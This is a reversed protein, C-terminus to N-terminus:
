LSMRKRRALGSSYRFHVSLDVTLRCGAIPSFLSLSFFPVFNASTVSGPPCKNCCSKADLLPWEYQTDKCGLGAVSSSLSLGCLLTLALYCLLQMQSSLLTSSPSSTSSSRTLNLLLLLLRHLFHFTLKNFFYSLSDTWHRVFYKKPVRVSMKFHFACSLSEFRKRIILLFSLVWVYSLSTM